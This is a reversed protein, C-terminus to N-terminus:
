YIATKRSITRPITDMNIGLCIVCTTPALLKSSSIPLGLLLFQYVNTIKSPLDSLILNDIYNILGPYGNKQWSIGLLLVPDRSSDPDVGSDLPSRLDLYYSDSKIGLLDIDRPDVRLQRFARSIDVKCLQAGPGFQKIREIITDISPYTLTFYTDLYSNKSVGSNVSHNHPWILDITIRRSDSDQKERTMM